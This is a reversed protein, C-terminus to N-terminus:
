HNIKSIENLTTPTVTMHSFPHKFIHHLYNLSQNVTTKENRSKRNNNLINDVITSFYKNFENSIVQYDHCLNGRINLPPM